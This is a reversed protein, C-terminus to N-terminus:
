WGERAAAALKGGTKRKQRGSARGNCRNRPMNSRRWAVTAPASPAATATATMSIAENLASNGSTM